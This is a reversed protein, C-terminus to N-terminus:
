LVACVSHTALHPHTALLRRVVCCFLCLSVCLCVHWLLHQFLLLHPLIFFFLLSFFDQHTDKQHTHCCRKSLHTGCPLSLTACVHRLLYYSLPPPNTPLHPSPFYSGPLPQRQCSTFTSSHMSLVFCSSSWAVLCCELFHRFLSRPLPLQM